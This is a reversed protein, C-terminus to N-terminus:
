SEPGQTQATCLSSSDQPSVAPEVLDLTLLMVNPGWLQPVLRPWGHADGRSLIGLPLQQVTPPLVDPQRAKVCYKTSEKGPASANQGPTPITKM